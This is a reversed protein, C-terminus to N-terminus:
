AAGPTGPQAATLPPAPQAVPRRWRLYFYSFANRLTNSKPGVAPLM